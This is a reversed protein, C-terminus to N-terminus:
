AARGRTNTDKHARVWVAHGAKWGDRWLRGPALKCPLGARGSSYGDNWEHANKSEREDARRNWWAAIRGGFLVWPCLVLAVFLAGGTLVHAVREPM